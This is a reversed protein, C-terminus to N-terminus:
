CLTRHPGAPGPVTPPVRSTLLHSLHGRPAPPPNRRSRSSGRRAVHAVVTLCPDPDPVCLLFFRSWTKAGHESIRLSFSAIGIRPGIAFVNVM